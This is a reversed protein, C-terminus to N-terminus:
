GHGAGDKKDFPATIEVINFGDMDEEGLEVVMFRNGIKRVLTPKPERWICTTKDDKVQRGQKKWLWYARWFPSRGEPYPNAKLAGDKRLLAPGFQDSDEFRFTKGEAEIVFPGAGWSDLNMTSGRSHIHGFNGM